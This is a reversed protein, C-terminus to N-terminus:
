EKISWDRLLMSLKAAARLNLTGGSIAGRIPEPAQWRIEFRASHSDPDITSSNSLGTLGHAWSSLGSFSISVDSFLFADETELHDGIFLRDVHYDERTFGHSSMHLTKVWCNSLTADSGFPCDYLVGLIIPITKKGPGGAEGIVGSLVLAVGADESFHLTGAVKESPSEPLWWIGNCDFVQMVM